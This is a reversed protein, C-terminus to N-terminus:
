GFLPGASSVEFRTLDSEGAILGAIAEGFAAMHPTAMHRALADADEWQEMVLVVDPDDTAFGFRYAICGPEALTAARMVAAAAIADERGDPRIRLSGQIAIM